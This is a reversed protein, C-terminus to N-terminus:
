FNALFFKQSRMWWEDTSLYRFPRIFRSACPGTPISGVFEDTTAINDVCVIACTCASSLTNLSPKKELTHIIKKEIYIVERNFINKNALDCAAPWCYIFTFCTGRHQTVRKTWAHVCGERPRPQPYLCSFRYLLVTETYCMNHRSWFFRCIEDDDRKNPMNKNNKEGGGAFVPLVRLADAFM